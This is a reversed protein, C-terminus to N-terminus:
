TLYHVPLVEILLASVLNAEWAAALQRRTHVVLRCRNGTEATGLVKQTLFFFFDVGGGKPDTLNRQRPHPWSDASLYIQEM